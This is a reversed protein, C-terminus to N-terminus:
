LTEKHIVRDVSDVVAQWLGDYERWGMGAAVGEPDMIFQVVRRNFDQGEEISYARVPVVAFNWFADALTKDVGAAEMFVSFRRKDRAARPQQPSDSPEVSLWRVINHVEHDGVTPDIERMAALVHRAKTPLNDGPLSQRFRVVREHYLKLQAATRRSRSLAESLKDRIDKRLVLISDDTAVDRAAVKRFPRVEDPTFVLVDSSPRYAIQGGGELTFRVVEGTYGTNTQTLDIVNEATPIHYRYELQDLDMTEDVGGRSLAATLAATRGAFPSFEPISALLRLEAAILSTGAADGLLLVCSPTIPTTLLARLAKPEPRVIMIRRWGNFNAQKALQSIETVTCACGMGRNSVLFVDATHADPLVLLVDRANWEPDNLLQMLKLSVPTDQEWDRVRSSVEDMLRRIDAAFEPAASATEAMPQLASTPFYSSRAAVEERGDGDFLVSANEKAEKIGLPLSAFTSLAHLGRGVAIGANAHGAERLRQSLGILRDRLPSLSADKIDAVFAMPPMEPVKPTGPAELIGADLLLAGHRHLRRGGSRADEAQRRVVLEARRMSFADECLIVIPARRPLNKADLAMLLAALQPQWDPALARRATRTLDVVVADLGHTVFREDDLCRALEGQDTPNLGMLAFPTLLPDGVDAVREPIANLKTHRRVRRLIQDSNPVYVPASRNETPVFVATTELLTPQHAEARSPLLDKLRLEVLCLAEQALKPDSKLTRNCLETFAKRRATQYIDEARVLISRAAYTAGSRWPWLTLTGKALRSTARAERLALASVVFGNDPRCPWALVVRDRGDEMSDLIAGVFGKHPAELWVGGESVRAYRMRSYLTPTLLREQTQSPHVAGTAAILEM